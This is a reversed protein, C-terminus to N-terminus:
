HGALGCPPILVLPLANWVVGIAALLALLLATDHLFAAGARERRRDARRNPIVALVVLAGLAGITASIGLWIAARGSGAPPICILAEAGYLLALHLFWVLPGAFIGLFDALPRTRRASM